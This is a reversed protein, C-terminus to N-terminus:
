EDYRSAPRKGEKINSYKLDLRRAETEGYIQKIVKYALLRNWITSDGGMYSVKAFGLENPTADTIKAALLIANTIDINSIMIYEDEIKGTFEVDGLTPLNPTIDDM